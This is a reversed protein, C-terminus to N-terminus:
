EAKTMPTRVEIPEWDCTNIAGPCALIWSQGTHVHWFIVGQATLTADYWGGDGSPAEGRFEVPDWECSTKAPNPCALAWSEGTTPNWKLAIEEEARLMEFWGAGSYPDPHRLEAKAYHKVLVAFFAM